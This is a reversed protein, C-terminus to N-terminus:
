KSEVKYNFSRVWDQASRLSNHFIKNGEDIAVSCFGFKAVLVPDVPGSYWENPGGNYVIFKGDSTKYTWGNVRNFKTM